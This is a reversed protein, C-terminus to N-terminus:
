LFPILDTLAPAETALGATSANSMDLLGSQSSNAIPVSGKGGFKNMISGLISGGPLSSLVSGLDNLFGGSSVEKASDSLTSETLGLLQNLDNMQLQQEQLGEDATVGKEFDAKEIAATSSDAGVGENALTTSLTALNEANTPAMADKYAQMYTSDNSGLNAIESSLLNGTGKGYIDVLQKNEDSNVVPTSVPVSAVPAVPSTSITSPLLNNGVPVSSNNLNGSVLGGNNAGINTVGGVGPLPTMKLNNNPNPLGTNGTVPKGLNAFANNNSPDALTPVTSM